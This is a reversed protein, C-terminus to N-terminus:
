GGLQDQPAVSVGSRGRVEVLGEAELSRYAQAVVRHDVGMERWLTRISPLRDGPRLTGLHLANLIRDRLRDSLENDTEM